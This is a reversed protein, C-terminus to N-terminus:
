GVKGARILKNQFKIGSLFDGYLCIQTLLQNSYTVFWLSMYARLCSSVREVMEAKIGRITVHFSHLQTSLFISIKLTM